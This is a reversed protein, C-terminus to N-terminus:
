TVDKNQFLNYGDSVINQSRERLYVGVLERYGMDDYKAIDDATSIDDLTTWLRKVEERLFNVDDIEELPKGVQSIAPAIAIAGEYSSRISCTGMDCLYGDVHACGIEKHVKCSRVPDNAKRTKYWIVVKEILKM